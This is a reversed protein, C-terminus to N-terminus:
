TPVTGPAALAEQEKWQQEDVGRILLWMGLSRAALVTPVLL